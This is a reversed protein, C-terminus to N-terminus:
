SCALGLLLPWHGLREAVAAFETQGGAGIGASLLEVSESTTMPKVRIVNADTPLVSVRHTTIVRACTSAGGLFPQLASAQWADDLVMLIDRDALVERLRTSAADVGEFDPREDTITEILDGLLAVLRSTTMERGLSVWLVGDDFASQIDDDECLIRAMTTKGYGGPGVLAVTSPVPDEEGRLLAQKVEALLELRPVSGAPPSEAMYPVRKVHCRTSLDNFFKQEQHRLDYWHVSRMWKPISQFDISTDALVPYGCVGQQRAYRWEMKVTQSSCAGRTMVLVMFEVHDLADKIQLWWDRGGEERQRDQWVKQASLPAELRERLSNAFAEGDLRAYSIFIGQRVTSRPAPM